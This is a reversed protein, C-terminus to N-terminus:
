SSSRAPKRVWDKELSLRNNTQKCRTNSPLRAAKIKERHRNMRARFLELLVSQMLQSRLAHTDYTVQFLALIAPPAQFILLQYCLPSRRHLAQCEGMEEDVLLFRTLVM